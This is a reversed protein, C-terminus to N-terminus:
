TLLRFLDLYTTRVKGDNTVLYVENNSSFVDRVGASTGSYAVLKNELDFVVVKTIDSSDANTNQVAFNRVTASAAAASPTFPPSLIILYNRHTHVSM